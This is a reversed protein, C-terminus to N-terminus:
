GGAIGNMLIVQAQPDIPHFSHENWHMPENDALICVFPLPEGSDCLVPGVLAPYTDALAKM